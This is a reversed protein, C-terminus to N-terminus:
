LLYVSVYLIPWLAVVFHWYMACATVASARPGAFRGGTALALTVGLWALAAVVHAAHAGILTYFTAGYTGSGVTLGFGILRFWEYGQVVLFLTGLGGALALGRVFARRDGRARARTAAVIAGSSALLVVTNVATVGVPLRPQLPPPWIPAALRVIWFSFVLAAFFMVEGGIVFITALVANDLLPRRRAPDRDPDGDGGTPPPPPPVGGNARAPRQPGRPPAELVATV